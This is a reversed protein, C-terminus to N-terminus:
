TYNSVPEIKCSTHSTKVLNGRAIGIIKPANLNGANKM